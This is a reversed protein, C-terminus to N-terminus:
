VYEALNFVIPPGGPFRRTPPLRPLGCRERVMNDWAFKVNEDQRALQAAEDYRSEITATHQLLRRVYVTGDEEYSFRLIEGELNVNCRRQKGRPFSPMRGIDGGIVWALGGRQALLRVAEAASRVAGGARTEHRM